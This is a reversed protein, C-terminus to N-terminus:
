SHTSRSYGNTQLAKLVSDAIEPFLFGIRNDIKNKVGKLSKQVVTKLTTIQSKAACSFMAEDKTM